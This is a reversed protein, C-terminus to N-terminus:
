SNESFTHVWPYTVLKYKLVIPCYQLAPHYGCPSDLSMALVVLGLGPLCWAGLCPGQVPVLTWACPSGLIEALPWGEEYGATQGWRRLILLDM